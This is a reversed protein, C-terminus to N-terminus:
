RAIPKPNVILAEQLPRRHTAFVPVQCDEAPYGVPILLFPKEHEPRGLLERLFGMPAPTHTLTALGALHAATLFLGASIGVSEQGYYIQGGDDAKTLRFIVIIWPAIELFAKHEDTGLPALDNLWQKTARHTYFAQEEREAASRIRRKTDPDSVAIYRWPQKNAGSPATTATHVLTEIVRKSVPKPSFHRITRRQSMIALTEDAVTATPRNPRYPTHLIMEPKLTEPPKM